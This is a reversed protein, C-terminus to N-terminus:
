GGQSQLKKISAQVSDGVKTIIETQLHCKYISQQLELLSRYESPVKPILETAKSSNISWTGQLDNFVKEFSARLGINDRLPTVKNLDISSNLNSTAKVREM